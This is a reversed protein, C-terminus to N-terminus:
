APVLLGINGLTIDAANDAQWAIMPDCWDMDKKYDAPYNAAFQTCVEHTLRRDYRILRTRQNDIWQPVKLIDLRRNLVSAIESRTMTKVVFKEQPDHIM